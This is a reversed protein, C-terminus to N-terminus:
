AILRRARALGDFWSVQHALERAQEALQRRRTPQLRARLLLCEAVSRRDGLRRFAATAAELATEAADRRTAPDLWRALALQSRGGAGADPEPEPEPEPEPMRCGTTTMWASAKLRLRSWVTITAAMVDWSRSRLAEPM